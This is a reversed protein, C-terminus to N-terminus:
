KVKETLSYSGRAYQDFAFDLFQQATDKHKFKWVQMPRKSNEDWFDSVKWYPKKKPGRGLAELEQIYDIAEGMKKRRKVTM